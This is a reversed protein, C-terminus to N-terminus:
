DARPAMIFIVERDEGSASGLKGVGGLPDVPVSALLQVTQTNYVLANPGNGNTVVGGSEMAQYTSNSYM